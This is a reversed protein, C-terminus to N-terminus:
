EKSVFFQQVKGSVLALDWAALDSATSYVAGASGLWGKAETPRM